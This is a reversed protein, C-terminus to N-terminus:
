HTADYYVSGLFAGVALAMIMAQLPNRNAFHGILMLHSPKHTLLLETEKAAAKKREFDRDLIEAPVELGSKMTLIKQPETGEAPQTPKVATPTAGYVARYVDADSMQLQYPQGVKPLIKRSFVKTGIVEQTTNLYTMTQSPNLTNSAVTSILGGSQTSQLPATVTAVQGLYSM